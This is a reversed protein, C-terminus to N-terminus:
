LMQAFYSSSSKGSPRNFRKLMYLADPDSPSLYNVKEECGLSIRFGMERVVERAKKCYSGYPYTFLVPASGTAEAIKDQAKTLDETLLARYKEEDEGKKMSCGKRQGVMHMDYTHNGIDVYGSASMEAIEDWTVYAYEPNHDDINSYQESYTGIVSLVAHMEYKKLLPFVYSYFSQCGDDFTIMVSKEPLPTGNDAFDLLQQVSITQYGNDRLWILDNEFQEASIVYKGLSSSKKSINHYMFIPLATKGSNDVATAATAVGVIILLCLILATYKKYIRIIL